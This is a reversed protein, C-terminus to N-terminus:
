KHYYYAYSMVFLGWSLVMFVIFAVTAPAGILYIFMSILLYTILHLGIGHMMIEKKSQHKNKAM